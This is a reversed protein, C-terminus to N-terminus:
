NITAKVGLSFTAMRPYNGNGGDREPELGEWKTITIADQANFYIRVSKINRGIKPITYGLQLM